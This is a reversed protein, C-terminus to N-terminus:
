VKRNFKKWNSKTICSKVGILNVHSKNAYNFFLVLAFLEYFNFLEYVFSDFHYAFVKAHDSYYMFCGFVQYRQETMLISKARFCSSLALSTTVFVTRNFFFAHAFVFLVFLFNTLWGILFLGSTKSALQEEYAFWNFCTQFIFEFYKKSIRHLYFRQLPLFNKTHDQFKLCISERKNFLVFNCQIM